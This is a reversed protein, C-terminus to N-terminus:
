SPPGVDEATVEILRAVAPSLSLRTEGAQVLLSGNVAVALVTVTVGPSMGHARVFERTADGADIDAIRGKQGAVLTSLPQHLRRMAGGIRPPIPKRQPSLTPEGLFSSLQEALEDPTVHEFRCAMDEARVPEVGLKDVLFVEWLRRKRLVRLAVAEGQPTLTVGKYPQYHIVGKEELRRCMQNASVPSVSLEEALASIPVPHDGQQLLAVRLLYMEMSESM